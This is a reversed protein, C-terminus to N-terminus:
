GRIIATTWFYFPTFPGPFDQFVPLHHSHWGQLTMDSLSM